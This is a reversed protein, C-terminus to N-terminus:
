ETKDGKKTETVRCSWLDAFHIIMQLPTENGSLNYKGLETYLGNHYLIAHQEEETLDIFMQAIAVSRVEHPVPLLDKNTTFPKVDSKKGTKLINEVYLPKEFQGIKGLDHLAAAIIVSNQIKNFGAGGLLAVGIKEATQMVNRTHHVLGFECSLHNGGSCPANFFGCEDMYEILDEIGERKTKNLRDIVYQKNDLQEM